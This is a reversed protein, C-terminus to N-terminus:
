RMGCEALTPRSICNLLSKIDPVVLRVPGHRRVSRWIDFDQQWTHFELEPIFSLCLEMLALLDHIKQFPINQKQLIAKLYKEVCQQAHFGSADYNPNNRARCERLASYYDGEAKRIWESVLKNM